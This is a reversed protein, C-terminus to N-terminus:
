FIFFILYFSLLGSKSSTKSSKQDRKIMVSSPVFRTIEAMKNRLVPKAEITTSTSESLSGSLSTATTRTPPASLVSQSAISNSPYKQAAAAFSSPMRQATMSSPYNSTGYASMPKGVPYGPVPPRISSSAAGYVASPMVSQMTPLPPPAIQPTYSPKTATTSSVLKNDDAFRLKKAKDIVYLLFFNM